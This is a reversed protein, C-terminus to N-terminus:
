VGGAGPGEGDRVLLGGQSGVGSDSFVFKQARGADLQPSNLIDRGCGFSSPLYLPLPLLLSPDSPLDPPQPPSM